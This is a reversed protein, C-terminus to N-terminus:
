YVSIYATGSAGSAIAAMAKGAVHGNFAGTTGSNLAPAFAGDTGLSLLGGVAVSNNAGMEVEVFGKKMLWGYGGSPITAHKCVGVLFDCSTVSSITVSYGSVASLIAGYSPAIDTAGANHVFVYVEDGDQMVQGLEPINNAQSDATVFSKGKFSVPNLGYGSM